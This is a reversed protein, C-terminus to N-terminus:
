TSESVVNRREFDNLLVSSNKEELIFYFPRSRAEELIRGTYECLVTLVVFVLFFMVGQQLSLTTWGKAVDKRVLYVIVVYCLYLLNIVSALLGLQSAFRLPHRSNVIIMELAENAHAWFTRRRSRGTRRLPVYTLSYSRFGVAASFWRLQRYADRIQTFANVTQRSLVRFHTAGLMVDTGWFRRGYWHFVRALLRAPGSRAGDTDALGTVIGVGERCAEVFEPILAPPDTEPMMIVVYDGIASEMGATIAVEVGFSRSLRILRVCRITTLLEDVRAVTADESADDVLVIEYNAYHSALTDSVERLFEGVIDADDRLPAVVSVFLDATTM